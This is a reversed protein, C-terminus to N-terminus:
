PLNVYYGGLSVSCPSGNGTNYTLYLDLGPDVYFRIPTSATSSLVQDPLFEAGHYLQTAPDQASLSIWGTSAVTCHGSVHEIVLRQNAPVSLIKTGSNPIVTIFNTQLSKRAPADSDKILGVIPVPQAPTNTVVVQTAAPANGAFATSAFLSLMMVAVLGFRNTFSKNKM